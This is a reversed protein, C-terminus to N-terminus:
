IQNYLIIKSYCDYGYYTINDYIDFIPEILKGLGCGLDCITTIKNNEIFKQIFPIYNHINHAWESGGGSSGSYMSNTDDGLIKNEYIFNFEEIM